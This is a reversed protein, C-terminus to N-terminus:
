LNQCDCNNMDLLLSRSQGTDTPPRERLLVQAGQKQVYKRPACKLLENSVQSVSFIFKIELLFKKNRHRSYSINKNLPRFSMIKMLKCPLIQFVFFNNLFTDAFSFLLGFKDSDLCQLYM